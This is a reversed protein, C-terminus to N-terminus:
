VVQATKGPRRRLGALVRAKRSRNSAAKAPAVGLVPATQNLGPNRQATRGTPPGLSIAPQGHNVEGVHWDSFRFGGTM